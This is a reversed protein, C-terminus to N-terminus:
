DDTGEKKLSMFVENERVDILLNGRYIEDLIELNLEAVLKLEHAWTIVKLIDEEAAGKTIRNPHKLFAAVILSIEDNDLVDSVRPTESLLAEM